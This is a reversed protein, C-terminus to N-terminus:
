RPCRQLMDILKIDPVSTASNEVLWRGDWKARWAMLPAHHEGRFSLSHPLSKLPQQRQGAINACSGLSFPWSRRPPVVARAPASISREHVFSRRPKPFSAPDSGATGWVDLTAGRPV